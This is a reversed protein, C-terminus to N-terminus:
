RLRYPMLKREILYDRIAGTRQLIPQHLTKTKGADNTLVIRFIRETVEDTWLWDLAPETLRVAETKLELEKQGQPVPASRAVLLVPAKTVDYISISRLNDVKTRLVFNFQHRPIGETRSKRQSELAGGCSLVRAWEGDVDVPEGNDYQIEITEGDALKRSVAINSPKPPAALLTYTLQCNVACRGTQESLTHYRSSQESYLLKGASNEFYHTGTVPDSDVTVGDNRSQDYNTVSEIKLCPIGKLSVSSVVRYSAKGQRLVDPEADAADVTWTSGVGMSQDVFAPLQGTTFREGMHIAAPVNPLPRPVGGHPSAHFVFSSRVMRLVADQIAAASPTLENTGIPVDSDVSITGSSTELQVQIRDFNVRIRAGGYKDVTEVEWRYWFTDRWTETSKERDRSELDRQNVTQLQYYLKEGTKFKWHITEKAAARGAPMLFAAAVALTAYVTLNAKRIM